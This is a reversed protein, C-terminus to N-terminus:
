RVTWILVAVVIVVAVLLYLVLLGTYRGCGDSGDPREMSVVSRVRGVGPDM